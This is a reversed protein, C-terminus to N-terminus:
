KCVQGTSEKIGTKAAKERDLQGAPCGIVWQAPISRSRSSLDARRWMFHVGMHLMGPKLPWFGGLAEWFCPQLAAAWEPQHLCETLAM